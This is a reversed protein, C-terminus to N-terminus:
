RTLRTKIGTIIYFYGFNKLIPVRSLFLELPTLLSPYIQPPVFGSFSPQAVQFGVQRLLAALSGATFFQADDFEGQSKLPFFRAGRRGKRQVMGRFDAQRAFDPSKPKARQRRQWERFLFLPNQLNMDTVMVRGGEQTADYVKNLFEEQHSLAALVSAIWTLSLGKVDPVSRNLDAVIFNIDLKRNFIEKEFYLKRKGAIAIQDPSIDVALVKAGLAAFLFSESGFGCGADLVIADRSASIAQVALSRRNVYITGALSPPYKPTNMIVEHHLRLRMQEDANLYPDGQIVEQRLTHYFGRTLNRCVDNIKM